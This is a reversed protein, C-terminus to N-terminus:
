HACYGGRPAGRRRAVGGTALGGSVMTRHAWQPMWIGRESATSCFPWVQHLTSCARSPGGRYALQM